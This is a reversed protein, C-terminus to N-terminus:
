LCLTSHRAYIRQLGSRWNLGLRDTPAGVVEVSGVAVVEPSDEEGRLAEVLVSVVEVLRVGRFGELAEGRPSDGEAEEGLHEEGAVM